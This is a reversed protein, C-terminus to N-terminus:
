NKEPKNVYITVEKKVLERGLLAGGVAGGITSPISVLLFSAVGANPNAALLGFTGAAYGGFGGLIGFSIPAAIHGGRKLRIISVNAVPLTLMSDTIKQKPRIKSVRLTMAQPTASLVKGQIYVGNDTMLKVKQDLLFTGLNEPNVRIELNRPPQVADKLQASSFDAFVLQFLVVALITKKMEFFGRRTEDFSCLCDSSPVLWVALLSLRCGINRERIPLLQFVLPSYRSRADRGLSSHLFQHDLRQRVTATSIQLHDGMLVARTLL